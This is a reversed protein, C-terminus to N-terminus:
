APWGDAGDGAVVFCRFLSVWGGLVSVMTALGIGATVLAYVYAHSTRLARLEVVLTSVTSLCGCFGDALGAMVRCATGAHRARGVAVSALVLVAVANAAFTGLPFRKVRPNLTRSLWFRAFVGAPAFACSVPLQAPAHTVSLAIAATWAAAGAAPLLMGGGPWLWRRDVAKTTAATAIATAAADPTTTAAAAAALGLVPLSALLHALHAGFQLAALSLAVTATAYAVVAMFNHGGATATGGRVHMPLVNALLRFADLAFSSFSTLSGCFGTTLGAYLAVGGRPSGGLPPGPRLFLRQSEDSVLLGMAACGAVNAWLVTGGGVPAGPFSALAIIGLRALTGLIAFLALHGHLRVFWRLPPPLPLPPPPPTPEAVNEINPPADAISERPSLTRGLQELPTETSDLSHPRHPSQLLRPSSALPPVADIQPLIPHPLPPPASPSPASPSPAAADHTDPSM